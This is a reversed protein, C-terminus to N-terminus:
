KQRNNLVEEIKPLERHDFKFFDEFNLSEHEKFELMKEYGVIYLSIADRINLTKLTISVVYFLLYSAIKKREKDQILKILKFLQHLIQNTNRKKFKSYLTPIINREEYSFHIHSIERVYDLYDDIQINTYKNFGLVREILENDNYQDQLAILKDRDVLEDDSEYELLGNEGVIYKINEPEEDSQEEKEENPYDEINLDENDLEVDSQEENDLEVDSQEENDQEVDSQEENDQNEIYNQIGM